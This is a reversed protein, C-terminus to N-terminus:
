SGSATDTKEGKLIDILRTTLNYVSELQVINNVNRHINLTLDFDGNKGQKGGIFTLNQQLILDTINKNNIISRIKTNDNAKILYCKNFETNISSINSKSFKSFIKEIFDTKSIEFWARGLGGRISCDVFLPKTDSESFSIVTKKYNFKLEFKNLDRSVTTIIKFDGNKREALTKWFESKEKVDWIGLNRSNM